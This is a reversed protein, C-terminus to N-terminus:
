RGKKREAIERETREILERLYPSNRDSARVWGGQIQRWEGENFKKGGKSIPSKFLKQVHAEIERDVQAKESSNLIRGGWKEAFDLSPFGHQRSIAALELADRHKYIAYKIAGAREAESAKRGRPLRVVPNEGALLGYTMHIDLTRGFDEVKYEGMAGPPSPYLRNIEEYIRAQEEQSGEIKAPLEGAKALEALRKLSDEDAGRITVDSPELTRIGGSTPEQEKTGRKRSRDIGSNSKM